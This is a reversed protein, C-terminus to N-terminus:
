EVRYGYEAAADTLMEWFSVAYGRAVYLDYVPREADGERCDITAAIHFMSTMAVQDTGFADPHVDIATGKMLVRRAMPGSLRIATRAHSLDAVASKAYAEALEAALPRSEREVIWCRNPGAWLVRPSGTGVATGPGPLPDVGLRRALANRTAAWANARTEIQVISLPHRERLSVGPSPTPTAGRDGPRYVRSLASRRASVEVM